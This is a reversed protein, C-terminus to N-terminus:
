GSYRVLVTDAFGTGSRSRYGSCCFADSCSTACGAPVGGRVNVALRMAGTLPRARTLSGKASGEGGPDGAAGAVVPQDLLGLPGAGGHSLGSVAYAVIAAGGGTPANGASMTATIDDVIEQYKDVAGALHRRNQTGQVVLTVILALAAAAVLCAVYEVYGRLVQCLVVAAAGFTFGKFTAIASVVVASAGFIALRAGALGQRGREVQAAQTALVSAIRQDAMAAKDVRGQQQINGQQYLVAAQGSWDEPDPYASHLLDFIEHSFTLSGNHFEEGSDPSGFGNMFELCEVVALVEYLYGLLALVETTAIGYTVGAEAVAASLQVGLSAFDQLGGQMAPTVVAQTVAAIAALLRLSRPAPEATEALEAEIDMPPLGVYPDVGLVGAGISDFRLEVLDVQKSPVIQGPKM